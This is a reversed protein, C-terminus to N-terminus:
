STLISNALFVDATELFTQRQCVLALLSFSSLIYSQATFCATSRKVSDLNFLEKSRRQLDIDDWDNGLRIGDGLTLQGLEFDLDGAFQDAVPHLDVLKGSVILRHCLDVGGHIYPECVAKQRHRM